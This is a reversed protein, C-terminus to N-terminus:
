PPAGKVEVAETVGAVQMALSLDVQQGVRVQINQRDVSSFGSLDVKVEYEGPTLFPAFFRGDSDTTLARTGQPSVITVTAGPIALGQPDAVRGAISGTTTEQAMADTAGSAGAASSILLLPIIFVWSQM